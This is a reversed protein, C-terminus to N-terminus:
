EMPIAGGTLEIAGDSGIAEGVLEMAECISTGLAGEPDLLSLLEQIM